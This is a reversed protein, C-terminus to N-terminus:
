NASTKLNNSIFQELDTIRFRVLRGIKVYPIEKRFVMSRLKSVKIQLMKAAEEHALLM